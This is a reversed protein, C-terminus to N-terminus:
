GKNKEKPKEATKKADKVLQSNKLNYATTAATTYALVASVYNAGKRINDQSLQHLDRTQQLRKIAAAVEKDDLYDKYRNLKSASKMIESKHTKVYDAERKVKQVVADTRHQKVDIKVDKVKGILDSGHEKVFKDVTDKNKLYVATAATLTVAVAVGAVIKKTREKKQADAESTKSKSGDSGGYRKKGDSTLSGDANQYRRVGWKQGKIGHHQLVNMEM